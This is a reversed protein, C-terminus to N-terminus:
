RCPVYDEVEVQAFKGVSNFLLEMRAAHRAGCLFLVPWVNVELVRVLWVYERVEGAFTNLVAFQPNTLGASVGARHLSLRDLSIASRDKACLDVYRHLVNKKDALLKAVTAAVGFTPVADDSMKEAIFKVKYKKRTAEVLDSLGQIQSPSYSDHGAQLRHETGIIIVPYQM